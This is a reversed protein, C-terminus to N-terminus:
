QSGLTEEVFEDAYELILMGLSKMTPVFLSTLMGLKLLVRSAVRASRGLKSPVHGKRNPQRKREM